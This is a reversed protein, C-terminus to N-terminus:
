LCNLQSTAQEKPRQDENQSPRNYSTVNAEAGAWSGFLATTTDDNRRQLSCQSKKFRCFSLPEKVSKVREDFFERESPVQCKACKAGTVKSTRPANSPGQQCAPRRVEPATPM